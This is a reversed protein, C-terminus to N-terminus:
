YNNAVFHFVIVLNYPIKRQKFYSRLCLLHTSQLIIERMKVMVKSTSKSGASSRISVTKHPSSYPSSPIGVGASSADRDSLVLASNPALLNRPWAKWAEPDNRVGAYFM